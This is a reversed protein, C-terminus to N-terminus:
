QKLLAIISIVIAIASLATPLWFRFSDIRSARLVAKGRETIQPLDPEDTIFGRKALGKCIEQDSQGFEDLPYMLFKFHKLIRIEDSSLKDDSM